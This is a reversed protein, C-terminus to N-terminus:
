TAREKSAAEPALPALDVDSGGCGPCGVSAAREAAALTMRRGCENCCWDKPKKM